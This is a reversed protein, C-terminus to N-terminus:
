HITRKGDFFTPNYIIGEEDMLFVVYELTLRKKSSPIMGLIHNFEKLDDDKYSQFLIDGAKEMMEMDKESLENMM